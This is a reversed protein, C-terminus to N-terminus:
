KRSPQISRSCGVSDHSSSSLGTRHFVKRSFFNKGMKAKFILHKKLHNKILSGSRSLQSVPLSWNRRLGGEIHGSAQDNINNGQVDSIVVGCSRRVSRLAMQLPESFTPSEEPVGIIKMCVPCPPDHIQMKPTTQELCEVHFIHSCPLVGAIPMDGSRVIRYSSWPSKQWLLRGCLGCKQDGTSCKPSRLNELDLHEAVDFSEGDLGLDYSSANSWRFGERRSSSSPDPSTEMNQLETFTKHFKHEISSSNDPWHLPSPKDEDPMLRSISDADSVPNRFVLPYVPKSMFSRRGSFNCHNFSISQKSTSEWQGSEPLSSPSGFSNSAASAGVTFRRETSHPFLSTEFRSGGVSPTAFEGFNLKQSTPTWQPAQFSDPPSGSYSLVGDSVSHQHNTYQDSRVRSRSGKIDSSLSSGQLLAGHSGHPLGDSQFRCDLIRTPPSFSSNTRWHPESPDM